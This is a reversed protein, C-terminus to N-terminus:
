KQVKEPLFMFHTCLTKEPRDCPKSSTTKPFEGPQNASEAAVYQGLLGKCSVNLFMDFSQSLGSFVSQVSIDLFDFVLNRSM